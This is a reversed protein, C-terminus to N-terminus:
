PGTCADVARDACAAIGNQCDDCEIRRDGVQYWCSRAGGFVTAEVCFELPAGSPCATDATACEGVFCQDLLDACSPEDCNGCAMALDTVNARSVTGADTVAFEYCKIDHCIDSLQDCIDPPVQFNFQLMGSTQGAAGDIMVTRVAGSTGFRIGAGVVNGNQATFPLNVTVTDGPFVDHSGGGGGEDLVVSPDEEPDELPDGENPLIIRATLEREAAPGSAQLADCGWVLSLPAAVVVLARWLDRRAERHLKQM